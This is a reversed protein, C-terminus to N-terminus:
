QLYCFIFLYKLISAVKTEWVDFMQLVFAQSSRGSLHVAVHFVLYVNELLINAGDGM